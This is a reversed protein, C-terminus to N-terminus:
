GCFFRGQQRGAAAGTGVHQFYKLEELTKSREIPTTTHNHPKLSLAIRLTQNSVLIKLRVRAEALALQHCYFVRGVHTNTGAKRFGDTSHM